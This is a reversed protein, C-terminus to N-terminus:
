ILVTGGGPPVIIYVNRSDLNTVGNGVVIILAQFIEATENAVRVDNYFDIAFDVETGPVVQYFAVDDKSEYGTGPIGGVYGEVPTISKIFLTADFEDPNGAVNEARTTVDQTVGGTLTGIGEIISSSVTGGPSDYVLPRDSGDVTGTARGMAEAESRGQGDVAVGIYRAGISTLAAAAQEFTHPAPTIGSYAESGGPGNHWEIDSVTIIIPLAGPRFCPYGRRVGPEDPISPCSRPSISATPSGSYNWTGGMGTATQYLAEVHSEPSDAGSGLELSNLGAQVAAVDATIDQVNAYPVDTGGFSGDSGYGGFPFDEFHGVGMQADPIAANIEAVISTLSSQVNEIPASMSGTTDILFYIDAINISTGFRLTRNARDGEFPLVVFFDGPAITSSPDRPDTMTGRAEGLDTVGDGDTDISRPDTFYTGVEEADPLGDNDSDLDWSDPEGDGDSDTISCPGGVQEDSDPIGDGDSDTDMFNPVGDGDVDGEGELEDALGDGDTDQDPECGPIVVNTDPRGSDGTSGDRSPRDDDGCGFALLSVCTILLLKKM